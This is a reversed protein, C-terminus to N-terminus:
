RPFGISDPMPFIFIKNGTKVEHPIFLPKGKFEFRFGVAAVAQGKKFYRDFQTQTWTPGLQVLLRKNETELVLISTDMSRNKENPTKWFDVVTGQVTESHKNALMEQTLPAQMQVQGLSENVSFATLCVIYAIASSIVKM